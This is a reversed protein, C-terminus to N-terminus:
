FIVEDLLLNGEAQDLKYVKVEENQQPTGYYKFITVKLFTPNDVKQYRDGFYNIKIQYKGTIANKLVFEEPGFGETMDNSMRGGIASSTHSYYCTENKPDTVYLDIDTDNHNWDIVVRFDFKEPEINNIKIGNDEKHNKVKDKILVNYERNAISNLGGFNRRNNGHYIEGSVIYNMFQNAQEYDKNKLKVLALDRYSQADEPRLELVKSYIYDAVENANAEELKYAYLRLFEYNDIETESLNSLIRLALKRYGSQIFFNFVEVYFLPENLHDERLKLYSQYCASESKCKTFVHMYEPLNYKFKVANELTEDEQENTHNNSSTNNFDLSNSSDRGNNLEIVIAGNVARSGYLSTAAVGKLVTVSKINNVSVFDDISEQEVLMGDVVYIPSNNGNLSSFGRINVSNSIGPIGSNTVSVGAVRGQLVDSVSLASRNIEEADIVRTSYTLNSNRSRKLGFATVVVEELLNSDTNMKLSINPSNVVVELTQMGVYSVTLIDGRKANLTYRGDFDTETGNRTGKVIISVGPLPGNEDSIVGSISFTGTLNSATSTTTNNTNNTNTQSVVKKEENNILAEYQAKLDDPPTIKYRVYDRIDDLVILSTFDSIINFKKSLAIIGLTDREKQTQMYKLKNQAWLKGLKENLIAEEPLIFDIKKVELSDIGLVLSVKQHSRVNNGTLFLEGNNISVKKPIVETEPNDTEVKLLQYKKSILENYVEKPTNITLNLYNGVNTKTVKQLIASNSKLISNIVFVNSAFEPFQNSLTHLGDTFLIHTVNKSASINKLVKFDTGGDYVVEKLVSKLSEWNQNSIQFKQTSILENSFLILNVKVKKLYKFYSDLVEFEKDLDRAKMSLSADWYLNIEEPIERMVSELEIPQYLYFYNADRIIRAQNVKQPIQVELSGKCLFNSRMFSAQHINNQTKFTLDKFDSILKPNESANYVEINISLKDLEKQFDLPLLFTQTGETTKLTQDYALVVRKYGNAPIPYIRAKYNNGSVKELLVPDVGRRVVAEFALRGLEKEVVVAERLHGGIELALRVVNQNDALPFNLEGELVSSSPNFFLMDYTTTVVNGIVQVKVDLSTMELQQENVKILPKVQAFIKVQLLFLVFLFIFKKM